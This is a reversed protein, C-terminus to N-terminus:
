GMQHVAKLILPILIAALLGILFVFGLCCVIVPILVTLVSKWWPCDHLEKLGIILLIMQYIGALGGFIPIIVFLQATASYSVAHLTANFGNKTGKLIWLFFHNIAASLFIGIFSLVPTLLVVAGFILPVALGSAIDEPRISQFLAGLIAPKLFIFLTQYGVVILAGVTQVIVAYAVVPFLRDSVKLRRFFPVPSVIIEKATLVFSQLPHRRCNQEWESYIREPPM